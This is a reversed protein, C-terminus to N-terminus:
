ASAILRIAFVVVLVVVVIWFVQIVWAPIEVGLQRCAVYVLAVVGAIVVIAIAIDIIGWGGLFALPFM